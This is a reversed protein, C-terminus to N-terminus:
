IAQVRMRVPQGAVDIPEIEGLQEVVVKECLTEACIYDQHAALAADVEPHQALRLVIRTTVDFDEAKRLRQISSVLERAFGEVRLESSLETDLLVTLAGDSALEAGPQGQMNVKVLDPPLEFRQDGVQLELSQGSQLIKLQAEDLQKVLGAVQQTQKGFRPGAQRFNLQASRQIGDAAEGGLEVVKVNVEDVILPRVETLVELLQPEAVVTLRSLPQRVKLGKDKRLSLTLSVVRRATAMQLNLREDIYAADATPFDTLHVSSLEARRTTLDGYLQEAHFPSVPALARCV